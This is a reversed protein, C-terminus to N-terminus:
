RRREVAPGAGYLLVPLILLAGNSYRRPAWPRIASISVVSIKISRSEGRVDKQRRHEGTKWRYTSTATRRCTELTYFTGEPLSITPSRRRHRNAMSTFSLLTSRRQTLIKRNSSGAMWLSATQLPSRLFNLKRRVQHWDKWRQLPRWSKTSPCPFLRGRRDRHYVPTTSYPWVATPPSTMHIRGKLHRLRLGRLKAM